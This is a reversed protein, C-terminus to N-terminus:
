PWVMHPLITSMWDGVASILRRFSFFSSLLYATRLVAPTGWVLSGIEAALPGFNVMNYDCTPPYQQKVLKNESQRDTGESRLYLGVSKAITSLHRIKQGNKRETNEALFFSLFSCCLLFWLAFIYHRCRSRM